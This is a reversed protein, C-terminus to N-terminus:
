PWLDFAMSLALLGGIIFPQVILAAETDSM